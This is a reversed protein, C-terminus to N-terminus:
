TRRTTWRTPQCSTRCKRALLTLSHAATLVRVSCLSSVQLLLQNEREMRTYKESRRVARKSRNLQHYFTKHAQTDIVHRVGQLREFHGACLLVAASRNFRSKSVFRPSGTPGMGDCHHPQRRAQPPVDLAAPLCASRSLLDFFRADDNSVTEVFTAM